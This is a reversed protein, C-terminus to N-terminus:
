KDETLELPYRTFGVTKMSDEYAYGPEGPKPIGEPWGHDKTSIPKRRPDAWRDHDFEKWIGVRQGDHYWGRELLTGGALSLRRWSGVREGRRNIPGDWRSCLDEETVIGLTSSSNREESLHKLWNRLEVEVYPNIDTFRKPRSSMTIRTEHHWGPRVITLSPHSGSALEVTVRLDFPPETVTELFKPEPHWGALYAFTLPVASGEVQLEIWGAYAPFGGWEGPTKASDIEGPRTSNGEASEKDSHCSTVGLSAAVSMCFLFAPLRAVRWSRLSGAIRAALHHRCHQAKQM